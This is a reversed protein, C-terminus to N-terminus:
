SKRYRLAICGSRFPKSDVLQLKEQLSVHELLRRGEGVLVPHVVFLYEDVLNLQILQSPIDVGGALIMKGEQQKLRLVEERLDGRVIRTNKENVGSLSRSFVIINKVSAFAHAFDNLARTSGSNSKAMDPWFPVMLEYTKRGYLLTDADGLLKAYFDHLEEDPIGKTHDCCGDLTLNIAFVLKRM